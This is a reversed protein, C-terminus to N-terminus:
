IAYNGLIRMQAKLDEESNSILILDDAYLLSCIKIDWLDIGSACNVKLYDELDNLFLAFLLPTLLCGQRVGKTFKLFNTIGYKSRVYSKVQGYMSRILTMFKGSIGYALLKKWLFSHDVKDFAKKFDVFCLFLKEKEKNVYHDILTFLTFIHDTTQYGKRFGCQNELLIDAQKVFETLRNNLVGVLIKGLTSLLTIGRYNNLESREGEKYLIVVGLTWEEPFVGNDLIKNLLLVFIDLTKEDLAKILEPIIKDLGAAEGNKFNAIM